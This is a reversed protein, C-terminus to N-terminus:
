VHARLSWNGEWENSLRKVRALMFSSPTGAPCKANPPYIVSASTLDGVRPERHKRRCDPALLPCKTVHKDLDSYRLRIFGFAQNIQRNLDGEALHAPGQKLNRGTLLSRRRGSNRNQTLSLRPFSSKGRGGELERRARREAAM